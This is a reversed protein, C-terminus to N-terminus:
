SNSSISFFRGGARERSGREREGPAPLNGLRLLLNTKEEEEEEEDAM